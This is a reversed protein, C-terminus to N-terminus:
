LTRAQYRESIVAEEEIKSSNRQCISISESLAFNATAEFIDDFTRKESIKGNVIKGFSWKEDSEECIYHGENVRKDQSYLIWFNVAEGNEKLNEEIKTLLSYRLQDDELRGLELLFSPLPELLEIMSSDKGEYFKEAAETIIKAFGELLIIEITPEKNM